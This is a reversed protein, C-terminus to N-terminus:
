REAGLFDHVGIILPLVAAAHGKIYGAFDSSIEKDIFKGPVFV